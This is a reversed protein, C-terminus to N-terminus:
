QSGLLSGMDLTGGLGLTLTWLSYHLPAAQDAPTAGVTSYTAGGLFTIYANPMYLVGFAVIPNVDRQLRQDNLTTEAPFGFPRGAWFGLRYWGCPYGLDPRRRKAALAEVLAQRKLEQKDPNSEWLMEQAALLYGVQESLSFEFQSETFLDAGLRTVSNLIEKQRSGADMAEEKPSVDLGAVKLWSVIFELRITALRRSIATAARLAKEGDQFLGTTSCYTAREENTTWYAPLVGVYSAVDIAAADMRTASSGIPLQVTM